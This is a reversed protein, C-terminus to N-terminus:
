RAALVGASGIGRRGRPSFSAGCGPRPRDDLGDLGRERFRDLWKRVTRRDTQVHRCIERIRVRDAALLVIRARRALGAMITTSRLWGELAVRQISTLVIQRKSVPLPM